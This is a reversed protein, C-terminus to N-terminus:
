VTAAPSTARAPLEIEARERALEVADADGGLEVWRRRAEERLGDLHEDSHMPDHHFLQTREAGTRRAFALAHNLASHGWGVHDPYEADSYQGDHILLSTDRALAFGSIWDEDLQDLDAGLAPEHDPIYTLSSDGEDIRYGLTPGRHSVSAARIRASGIEWETDPAHRFSVDCPLERVEVPSLPASIYRAIRDRLSAEPSAPGWIVIETQPRFAPAFFVLGQIHDLHLHTLLIHLRTPEQPLALGLSRIGSGADLAM